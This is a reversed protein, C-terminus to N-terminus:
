LKVGELISFRDRIVTHTGTTGDLTIDYCFDGPAISTDTTTLNFTYTTSPDSVIGTKSLLASADTAKRKVTLYSTYLNLNSLGVVYVAITKTNKQYIEIHNNM